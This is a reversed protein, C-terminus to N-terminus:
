HLPLPLPPNFSAMPQVGCRLGREGSIRVEALARGEDFCVVVDQEDARGQYCARPGSPRPRLVAWGLRRGAGAEDVRMRISGDASWHVTATCRPAGAEEDRAGSAESESAESEPDDADAVSESDDADVAAPRAEDAVERRAIIEDQPSYWFDAQLRYELEHVVNEGFSVSKRSAAARPEPPPLAERARHAGLVLAGAARARGAAEPWPDAAALGQPEEQSEDMGEEGSLMEDDDDDDSTMESTMEDDDDVGEDDSWDFLASLPGESTRSGTDLDSDSMEEVSAAAAEAAAAFDEKVPRAAHRM